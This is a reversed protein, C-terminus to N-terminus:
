GVARLTELIPSTPRGLLASLDGTVGALEGAAIAADVGLIFGIVGADLGAAALVDSKEAASVHRAVVPRGLATAFDAALEDFSWAVDGTLTLTQGVQSGALVVAAAEALETRAASAVRGQGAATLIEGTQAAAGLDALYNEHYWNNRLIVHALGSAALAQETAWHEPAVPNISTDAGPASTYVLRGVGATKAADIVAQHQQARKGFENGSVLLLSDVGALASPLEDPQNYDFVRVTVGKAALGDAADPRRVLAVIQDAPTGRRLLHEVVLGGLHGTAGTVALTM